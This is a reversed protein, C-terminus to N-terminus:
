GSQDVACAAVTIKSTRSKEDSFIENYFALLLHVRFKCKSGDGVWQKNIGKSVASSIIFFILFEESLITRSINV